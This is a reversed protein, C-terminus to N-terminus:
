PHSAGSPSFPRSQMMGGLLPWGGSASVTSAAAGGRACQHAPSPSSHPLPSAATPRNPARLTPSTYISYHLSINRLPFRPRRGDNLHNDPNAPRTPLKPSTAESGAAAPASECLGARAPNFIMLRRPQMETFQGGCEKGLDVRFCTRTMCQELATSKCVMIAARFGSMCAVHMCNMCVTSYAQVAHM